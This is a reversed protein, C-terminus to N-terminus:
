RRGGKGGIAIKRSNRSKPSKGAPLPRRLRQGGAAGVAGRATTHYVAPYGMQLLIDDEKRHMVKAQAATMDDYGICHLLSHIAYLLIELEPRHHRMAAQRQAEDVCIITEVELPALECDTPTYNFTLVDTTNPLNMTRRHYEIMRQDDVLHITWTGSIVNVLGAARQAEAGIWRRMAPPVALRIRGTAPPLIEMDITM